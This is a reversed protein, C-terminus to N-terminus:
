ESQAKQWRFIQTSATAKNVGAAICAAMIEPRPKGKMEDCIRWVTKVPGVVESKARTGSEGQKTPTAAHGGNAASSARPKEFLEPTLPEILFEAPINEDVLEERTCTVVLVGKKLGDVWATEVHSVFDKGQAWEAAPSVGPEYTFKWMREIPNLSTRFNAHGAKRAADRAQSRFVYSAM